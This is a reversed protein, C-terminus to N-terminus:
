LLRESVPYFIFLYFWSGEMSSNSFSGHSCGGRKHSATARISWLVPFHVKAVGVGGSWM